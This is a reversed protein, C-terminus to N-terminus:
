KKEENYFDFEFKVNKIAVTKEFTINEDDSIKDVIKKEIERQTSSDAGSKEQNRM